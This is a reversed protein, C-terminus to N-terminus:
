AVIRYDVSEGATQSPRIIRMVTGKKLNFYRSVPDNRMVKKITNEDVNYEKKYAEAEIPTLIEFKPQYLHSILDALMMSEKFIQIGQKHVFDVIKNNYDNAVIIKTFAGYDKIYDSIVSQKGTASVKQFVIRIAYTEGNLAKVLFTNNGDDTVKQRAEELNLLQHKEGSKTLYFRNSLMLLVNDLITATKQQETKHIIFLSKKESPSAVEATAEKKSM